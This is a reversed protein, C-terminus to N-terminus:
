STDAAMGEIEGVVHDAYPRVGARLDDWREEEEGLYVARAHALVPQHEEPLHSLAWTAAVDKPYIEGTAVSTWIRALTLVVNRTDSDLDRLLRDIDGVMAAVYDRWPVPDLIQSPPPGALPRNGHLAMTILLAVDPNTTSEWPEVNGCEFESRLWEGYLFDFSPPYRWPRIESEVVITLEVPRPMGPSESGSILLLRDVLSRKEELSTRRKSVVLVDLDSRPRQEGLALSGHLYAGVVDAGLVDRVATVVQDIQEQVDSQM